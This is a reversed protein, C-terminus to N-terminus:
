SCACQPCLAAASWRPNQMRSSAFYFGDDLQLIQHRLESVLSVWSCVPRQLEFDCSCLVELDPLESLFLVHLHLHCSVVCLDLALPHYVSHLSGTWSGGASRPAKVPLSREGSFIERVFEARPVM